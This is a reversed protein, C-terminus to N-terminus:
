PKVLKWVPKNLVAALLELNDLSITSRGNELESLYSQAFGLKERIDKQTLGAERRAAKLNRAFIRRLDTTNAAKM